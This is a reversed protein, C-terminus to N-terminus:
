RSLGRARTRPQAAVVREPPSVGAARHLHDRVAHATRANPPRAIAAAFSVEADEAGSRDIIWAVNRGRGRTMAVYIGARTSAPELVCIGHDVTVGQNGYGTVAWGLEVHRAVYQAPLRLSGREADTVTLSGDADVAAVSWTQRNRVATGGTTLLGADNRRTAVQDGVFVRTGDAVVVSPGNQRPNRRRQIEVNISRATGASATTVAVTDGRATLKEHQRAVRDALLSPHVTRLRQHEGYMAAAAPDGQRLLLSAEAQWAESFRRVEGLHHAPVITCWHAFMGGRGVSPLQAPDGVCALRWRHRDALVVLRSLDDTSAMGAEDLILTTGRRLQWQPMPGDPRHYEHLLKALTTATSGTERALVDAARGSPALGIVERGQSRLDAAATALMTTKGTGAPGVVLVLRQSGAVDRAAATATEQEPGVVSRLGVNARAWRLLRDEQDLVATTTLKRDVVHETIPRGDRRRAVGATAPPHLEVCRELARQALGDVVQIIDAASGAVEPPLRAAIERALDAALWTSSSSAVTELAQAIVAEDDWVAQRILKRPGDPLSLPEFGAAQARLQWEGRLQDAEVPECKGPRTDLVAKRELRYLTRPDPEAGDHDDVWAAVLEAMRADVQVHRQSFVDLLEAPVGEIDAHGERLQGWSVGLRASLETRLAAAYVWGISRQQQKLFRADLSLWRGDLDQVKAWIVAHTHLQPDVDRSTHQRFLAAVLGNADVQYIGDTGRRTVLGHRELWELAAVVAADHAALVEARVWADPSLAWLVSVSKPASFTADFARASKAGFGRGLRRGHGPHRAQLMAALQEPRVDGSLEVAPCGRGWWRGPPENPDLYYDIPGRSRGDRRLQDEALGAYYGVLATVGTGGGKLTTARM